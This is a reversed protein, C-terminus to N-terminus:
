IYASSYLNIFDIKFKSAINSIVNSYATYTIGSIYYRPKIEFYQLSNFQISYSSRLRVYSYYPLKRSIYNTRIKAMSSIEFISLFDITLESARETMKNFQFMLIHCWKTIMETMKNDFDTKSPPGLWKYFYLIWFQDIKRSDFRRYKENLLYSAKDTVMEVLKRVPKSKVHLIFIPRSKRILVAM